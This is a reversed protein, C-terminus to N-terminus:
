QGIQSGLFTQRKKCTQSQIINQYLSQSQTKKVMYDQCDNGTDEGTQAESFKFDFEHIKKLKVQISLLISHYGMMVNMFGMETLFGKQKFDMGLQKCIGWEGRNGDM